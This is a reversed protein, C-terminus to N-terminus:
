AETIAFSLGVFRLREMSWSVGDDLFGEIVPAEMEVGGSLAARLRPAVTGSGTKMHLYSKGGAEFSFIQGNEGDVTASVSGSSGAGSAGSPGEGIQPVFCRLVEGSAESAMKAALWARACDADLLPLRYTARMRDGFRLLAQTSGGLTSRLKGGAPVLGIEVQAGRPLAPLDIAM